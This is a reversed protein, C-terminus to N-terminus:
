KWYRASRADICMTYPTRITLIQSLHPYSKNQHFNGYCISKPPNNIEIEPLDFHVGFVEKQCFDMGLLNHTRMETIWVTLPFIFQGDPDYSFTTTAYGIM